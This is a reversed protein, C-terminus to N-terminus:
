RDHEGFSHKNSKVPSSDIRCVQDVTTGGSEDDGSVYETRALTASIADAPGPQATSRPICGHPDLALSPLSDSADVQEYDDCVSRRRSGGDGDLANM